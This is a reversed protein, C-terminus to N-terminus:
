LKNRCCGELFGGVPSLATVPLCGQRQASHSMLATACSCRPEVCSPACEVPQIPMQKAQAGAVQIHRHSWSWESSYVCWVQAVSSFLQRARPSLTVHIITCLLKTWRERHHIDESM